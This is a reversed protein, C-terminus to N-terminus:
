RDMYGYGQRSGGGISEWRSRRWQRQLRQQLVFFIPAMVLATFLAEPIFYQLVAGRMYPRYGLLAVQVGLLGEKLLTAIVAFLSPVVLNQAFYQESFLGSVFGIITYPLAMFGLYPSYLVDILAGTLLGYSGATMSGRLIGLSIVVVVITDPRSGAINYRPLFATELLINALVGLVYLLINSWRLNM